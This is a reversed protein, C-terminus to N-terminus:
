FGKLDRFLQAQRRSTEIEHGGPLRLLLGGNILPEVSEVLALNVIYKRSARFFEKADLREELANLTRSILPRHNGFYLRTYNGESEFLLIKELKIFWCQEGDRVFVKDTPKLLNSSPLTSNQTLSEEVKKLAQTLRSLEIPKLLYDLANFSFAKLAFEDYATTFIVRPVRDLDELLAFGDRGPMQIDLFILDPNLENILKIAEDANQAEGVISIETFNKLLRQLENRALREDDIILARIM